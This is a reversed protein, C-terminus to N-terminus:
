FEGVLLVPDTTLENSLATRTVRDKAWHAGHDAM